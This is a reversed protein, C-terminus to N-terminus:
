ELYFPTSLAIDRPNAGEIEVRIFKDLALGALPFELKIEQADTKQCAIMKEASYLRVQAIKGYTGLASIKVSSREAEERTVTDGPLKGALTVDAETIGVAAITHGDKIASVVSDRDPIGNTYIFNAAPNDLIRRAGFLDVSVMIAIRNGALWHKEVETGAASRLPELDVGDYAHHRWVDCYPHTAVAAGHKAHIYDIAKDLSADVEADSFLSKTFETTYSDGDVGVALTHYTNHGLHANKDHWNFPHYEQGHLFLVKDDSFRDLQFNGRYPASDKVALACIDFKMYRMMAAITGVSSDCGYWDLSHMHVSLKYNRKLPLHKKEAPIVATDGKKFREFHALLNPLYKKWFALCRESKADIVEPFLLQNLFFLGKGYRYQAILAGDRVAPDKYSGLIEWQEPLLYCSLAATRVEEGEPDAESPVIGFTNTRVHWYIMEDCEIKEPEAFLRRGADEVTPMMYNKYPGSEPSNITYVHRHILQTFGAEAPLFYPVWRRYDQHMFLCIGGRKIYDQFYGEDNEIYDNFGNQEILVVDYPELYRPLSYDIQEAEIGQERLFTIFSYTPQFWHKFYGIKM